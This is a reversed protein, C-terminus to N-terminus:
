HQEREIGYSDYWNEMDNIIKILAKGGKTLVYNNEEKTIIEENILDKLTRSLVANTLYSFESSIVGFTKSEEELSIILACVFRGKLIDITKYFSCEFVDCQEM